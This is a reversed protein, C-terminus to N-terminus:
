ERAKDASPHAVTHAVASKLAVLEKPIGHLSHLCKVLEQATLVDMLVRVEGTATEWNSRVM